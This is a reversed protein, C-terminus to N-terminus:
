AVVKLSRRARPIRRVIGRAILREVVDQVNTPSIGVAQAIERVSPTPRGQRDRELIADRVLAQRVTLGFSAPADKMVVAHGRRRLEAALQDDSYPMFPNEWKLTTPM